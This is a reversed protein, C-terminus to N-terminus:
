NKLLILFSKEKIWDFYLCTLGTLNNKICEKVLRGLMVGSEAYITTGLIKLSKLSKAPSIVIGDIGNDSVLLNSGSGIFYAPINNDHSFRLIQALDEKDNPTIYALAPGGIRYSTHKSMPENMLIKGKVISKLNDLYSM